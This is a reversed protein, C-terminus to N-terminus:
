EGKEASAIDKTLGDSEEEKDEPDEEESSGEENGEKVNEEEDDVNDAVEKSAWLYIPFNIFQSYRKV